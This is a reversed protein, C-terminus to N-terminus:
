KTLNDTSDNDDDYRRNIDMPLLDHLTTMIQALEIHDIKNLLYREYGKVASEGAEILENLWESKDEPENWIRKRRKKKSM